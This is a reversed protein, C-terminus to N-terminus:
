DRPSPSTYLLCNNNNNNNNNDCKEERGAEQREDGGVIGDNEDDEVEAEEDDDDDNFEPDDQVDILTIAAYGAAVRAAIEAFSLSRKAVPRRARTVAENCSAM